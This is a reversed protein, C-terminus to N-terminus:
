KKRRILRGIGVLGTGLLILSSPEPVPPTAIGDSIFNYTVPKGDTGILFGPMKPNTPSYVASNNGEPGFEPITSNPIFRPPPTPFDAPSDLGDDPFSWFTLTSTIRDFEIIDCAGNPTPCSPEGPAPLISVTGPSFPRGALGYALFPGFPSPVVPMPITPGGTPTYFGNGNEDVTVIDARGSVAACIMAVLFLTVRALTKV